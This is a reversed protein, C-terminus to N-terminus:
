AFFLPEWLLLNTVVFLLALGIRRHRATRGGFTHITGLAWVATTAVVFLMSM